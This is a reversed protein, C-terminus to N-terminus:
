IMYDNGAMAAVSDALDQLTYSDVYENIVKGLGKWFPSLEYYDNPLSWLVDRGMMDIGLSQLFAVLIGSRTLYLYVYFFLFLGVGTTM